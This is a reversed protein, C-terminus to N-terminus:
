RAIFQRVDTGGQGVRFKVVGACRPCRGHYHTGAANRYVRQYTSCCEFWVSIWPRGQAPTKAPEGALIDLRKPM